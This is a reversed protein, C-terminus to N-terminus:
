RIERYYIVLDDGQGYFGPIRGAERYGQREYVRRAADYESRTSTEIRVVGSGDRGRIYREAKELLQGGLGRGQRHSRVAIWYIDWCCRTMPTRGFFVFGEVRGDEVADLLVYTTQPNNLCDGLIEELVATEEGSFAGTEVATEVYDAITRGDPM